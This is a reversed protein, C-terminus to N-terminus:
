RVKIATLIAGEAQMREALVGKVVIRTASPRYVFGGPDPQFAKALKVEYDADPEFSVATRRPSTAM